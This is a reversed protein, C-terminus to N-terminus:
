VGWYRGTVDRGCRPCAPKGNSRKRIDGGHIFEMWGCFKRRAFEIHKCYHFSRYQYDPCTCSFDYEAQENKHSINDWRVSYVKESSGSVVTTEWQTATVCEFFPVLSLEPM